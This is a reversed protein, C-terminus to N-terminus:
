VKPPKHRFVTKLLLGVIGIVQTAITGAASTVATGSYASTHVLVYCCLTFATLIMLIALVQTAAKILFQVRDQWMEHDFREHGQRYDEWRQVTNVIEDAVPASEDVALENRQHYKSIAPLKTYDNSNIM